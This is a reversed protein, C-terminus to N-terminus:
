VATKELCCGHRALLVYPYFAQRCNCLFAALLISCTRFAAGSLAVVTCGGVVWWLFVIWTLRVLGAPWQQPLISWSMLSMSRHVVWMSSCLWSSWSSSIYLNQASAPHQKSSWAPAISSLSPYRLLTLSIGAPPTVHLRHCKFVM